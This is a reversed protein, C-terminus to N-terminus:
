RECWTPKRKELFAKVGEGADETCCLSAFQDSLADIAQHYPVDQM